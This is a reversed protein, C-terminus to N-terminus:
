ISNDRGQGTFQAVSCNDLLHFNNCDYHHQPLQRHPRPRCTAWPQADFAFSVAFANVSNARLACLERLTEIAAQRQM